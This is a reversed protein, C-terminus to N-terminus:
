VDKIAQAFRKRSAGAWRLPSNQDFYGKIGNAEAKPMKQTTRSMKYTCIKCNGLIKAFVIVTGRLYNLQVNTRCAQEELKYKQM